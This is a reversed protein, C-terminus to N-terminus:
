AHAKELRKLIKDRTGETCFAARISTDAIKRFVGDDWGFAEALMDYERAMTTHFFPPNSIGHVIPAPSYGTAGGTSGPGYYAKAM